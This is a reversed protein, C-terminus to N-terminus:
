RMEPQLSFSDATPFLFATPDRLIKSLFPFLLSFECLLCFFLVAYLFANIQHISREKMRFVLFLMFFISPHKTREPDKSENAFYTATEIVDELLHRLYYNGMGWASGAAEM